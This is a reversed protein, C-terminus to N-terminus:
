GEAEAGTPAALWDLLARNVAEPQELGPLHGAGSIIELGAHPILEALFEHRKVPTLRDYEGCMILTPVQCRRATAQQDLRRQLARSQDVFLAAGLDLGMQRVLNLIELRRTGPALVEPPLSQQLAQELGGTRASVILPERMAAQDPTESLPTTAMLCLRTVRAPARRLIELAVIGGMSLGLLAFREPLMSLIHTAIADVRDGGHLPAVMVPAQASLAHLQPTFVRADCMMGPLLVVPEAGWSGAQEM